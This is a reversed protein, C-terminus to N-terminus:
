KPDIIFHILNLMSKYFLLLTLAFVMIFINTLKFPLLILRQILCFKFFLAKPALLFNKNKENEEFQCETHMLGIHVDFLFWAGNTKWCTGAGGLKAWISARPVLNFQELHLPPHDSFPPNLSNGGIKNCICTANPSWGNAPPQRIQKIIPSFSRM